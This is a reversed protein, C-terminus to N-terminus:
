IGLAGCSTVYRCFYVTLHSVKHGHRAVFDAEFEKVVIKLEICHFFVNKAILPDDGPM